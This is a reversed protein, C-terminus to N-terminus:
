CYESVLKRPKSVCVYKRLPQLNLLISSMIVTCLSLICNTPNNTCYKLCMGFFYFIGIVCNCHGTVRHTASAYNLYTAEWHWVYTSSAGSSMSYTNTQFALSIDRQFIKLIDNFSGVNLISVAGTHKKRFCTYNYLRTSHWKQLLRVLSPAHVKSHHAFYSDVNHCNDIKHCLDSFYQM